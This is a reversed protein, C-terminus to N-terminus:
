GNYIYFVRQISPAVILVGIRGHALFSGGNSIADNIQRKVTPDLYIGFGYRNLYNEVDYSMVANTNEDSGELQTPTAQWTEYRGRWDGDSVTKKSLDSLRSIGHSQVDNAIGNPLVYVIVGTENGGPGFGWSHESSYLVTTVGLGPPVFGLRHREAFLGFAFYIGLGMGIAIAFYIALNKSSVGFM